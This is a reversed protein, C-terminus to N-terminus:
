IEYIIHLYSIWTATDNWQSSYLEVTPADLYPFEYLIPNPECEGDFTQTVENGFKDTVNVYGSAYLPGDGYSIGKIGVIVKATKNYSYVNRVDTYAFSVYKDNPARCCMVLGKDDSLEGTKGTQNQLMDVTVTHAGATVTTWGYVPLWYVDTRTAQAIDVGDVAIYATRNAVPSSPYLWTRACLFVETKDAPVTINKSFITTRVNQPVSVPTTNGGLIEYYAESFEITTSVMSHNGLQTVNTITTVYTESTYQTVGPGGLRAMQEATVVAGPAPAPYPRVAPLIVSFLLIIILIYGLFFVLRERTTKEKTAIVLILGCAFILLWLIPPLSLASLDIVPNSQGGTVFAQFSHVLSTLGFKQSWYGSIDNLAKLLYRPPSAYGSTYPTIVLLFIIFASVIYKIKM